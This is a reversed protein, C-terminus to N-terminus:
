NSSSSPPSTSKNLEDMYKKYMDAFSKNTIDIKAKARMDAMEKGVDNKAGGAKLMLQRRINRRAKADLPTREEPLVDHLLFKVQTKAGETIVWPTMQGIKTASIADRVPGPLGAIPVTGFDGGSAKTVDESYVKAVDAFKKGAALDADVKSKIGEDTVAIVSLKARKPITFYQPNEKYFKDIEADTITVGFTSIKFQALQYRLQHEVDEKTLGDLAADNLFSKNETLITNLEAQVEADSPYVGKQKALQFVLKETILLEITLFGPPFSLNNAGVRRTVGPLTEMRHLYEPTRVTEGNITVIAGNPDIQAFATVGFALAAPVALYRIM